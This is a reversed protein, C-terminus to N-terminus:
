LHYYELLILSWIWNSGEIVNVLPNTVESGKFVAILMMLFNTLINVIYVLSYSM